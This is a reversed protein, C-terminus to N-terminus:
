NHVKVSRFNKFSNTFPFAQAILSCLFRLLQTKGCGTEGMIIVPINCRLRMIIALIKIINDATLVYSPNPDKIAQPNLGIVAALKQLQEERYLAFCFM